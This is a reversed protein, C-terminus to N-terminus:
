RSGSGPASTATSDFTGLPHHLLFQNPRAAVGVEALGYVPAMAEPRFGYPAFRESFRRMTEPSVPESGNCTFPVLIEILGRILDFAQCQAADDWWPSSPYPRWFM